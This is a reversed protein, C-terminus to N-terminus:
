VATAGDSPTEAAAEPCDQTISRCAFHLVFPQASIGSSFARRRRCPAGTPLYDEDTNAPHSGEEDAFAPYIYDSIHTEMAM